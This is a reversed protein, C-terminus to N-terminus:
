SPSSKQQQQKDDLPLLPLSSSVNFAYDSISEDVLEKALKDYLKQAEDLLM